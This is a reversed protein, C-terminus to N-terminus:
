CYFSWCLEQAAVGGMFQCCQSDSLCDDLSKMDVFKRDIEELKICETGIISNYKLM